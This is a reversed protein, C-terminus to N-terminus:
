STPAPPQKDELARGLVHLLDDLDFPKALFYPTGLRTAVEPLGVIGSVLVVPVAEMGADHCIMRRAMEPGTLHPMEVDLIVADPLEEHLM